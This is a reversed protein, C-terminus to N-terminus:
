MCLKSDADGLVADTDAGLVPFPYLSRPQVRQPRGPRPSCLEAAETTTTSPRLLTSTLFM